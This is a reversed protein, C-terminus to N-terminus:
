KHLKEVTVGDPRYVLRRDARGDKIADYTLLELRGSKKDYVAKVAPKDANTSSGVATPRAM